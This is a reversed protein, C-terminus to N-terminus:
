VKVDNLSMNQKEQIKAEMIKVYKGEIAPLEDMGVSFRNTINLWEAANELRRDNIEPSHGEQWM